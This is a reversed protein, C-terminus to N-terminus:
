NRKREGLLILDRLEEINKAALWKKEFNRNQVIQAIAALARLHFTREDRTGAIVFIMQVRPAEESFYVGERCRCLLMNFRHEGAVIIHPIALNDALVTSSEEERQLMRETFDDCTKDLTDCLQEAATRFFDKKDIREIIDLIPCREIIEDFRDSEIRDRERIIEKLESELTPTRLAKDRVRQIIHFLASEKNTRIRGYFWYWLLGCSLFVASVLLPVHGMEIILFIYALLGFIQLWPYLPAKFKPRYNQIGSERMIIVSINVFAFLLIKITSATKVLMELDLFLIVSIMFFSTLIIAMYPTGSKKGIRGLFPPVLGDRSMAMPNRSAALIGANATSIFALIAGLALMYSGFNGMSIRAADSIPTLSYKGTATVILGDGAIGVTVFVVLVYIITVIFFSLIMGLPINRSPNEIEEAVSAIKTLGGYSVFILGATMFLTRLNGKMFYQFHENKVQPLGNILYIALIVLLLLVIIIQTRSAQKVGLLNVIMFILCFFVAILKIQWMNLAPHLILGFAGIGLLAFASKFALSFWASIGALTGFESGMSRDVFFYDGGSKPMATALEAKSLLSPIVLLGAILYALVVAPGSKYYALGPLIFLGSSIMAGTAICFVDLLKLKRELM